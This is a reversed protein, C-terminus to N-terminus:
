NLYKRLRTLRCLFIQLPFYWSDFIWCRFPSFGFLHHSSVFRRQPRFVEWLSKALWILISPNESSGKLSCALAM